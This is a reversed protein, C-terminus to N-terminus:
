AVKSPRLWITSYRGRTRSCGGSPAVVQRRWVVGDIPAVAAVRVVSDRGHRSTLTDLSIAIVEIQHKRLVPRIAPIYDRAFAEADHVPHTLVMYATM